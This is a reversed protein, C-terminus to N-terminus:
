SYNLIWISSFFFFFDKLMDSVQLYLLVNEDQM